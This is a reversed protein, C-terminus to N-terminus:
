EINLTGNSTLQGAININQSGNNQQYVAGNIPYTIKDKQAQIRQNLCLFLM